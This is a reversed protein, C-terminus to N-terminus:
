KENLLKSINEYFKDAVADWSFKEEIIERGRKGMRERIEPHMQLQIIKEALKGHKRPDVLFGAEGDKYQERGEPSTVVPTGCAMAEKVTLNMSQGISPQVVVDSVSMYVPLLGYDVFGLFEINKFVGLRRALEIVNEKGQKNSLTHTILLLANPVKKVVLKLVKILHPTGKISTFDTSHFLLFKGRHKKEININRTPKFFDLAVGEYVVKSNGRGYCKKIWRKNYESLTLVADSSRTANIDLSRFFFGALKIMLRQFWPFGGVFNNDFFFAYPEYCLQIHPLGLRKGLVNMPFMSSIILDFDKKRGTLIQVDRNIFQPLKLWYSYNNTSKGSLMLTEIGERLFKEKAEKSFIDSGIVINLDKKKLRKAVELIYKHGGMWNSFHPHLWLISTKKNVVKM